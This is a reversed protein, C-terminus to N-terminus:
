WQEDLFTEDKIEVLSAADRKSVNGSPARLITATIRRNGVVVELTDGESVQRGPRAITQNVKVAGADCLQKARPRQKVLRSVKLFKDLRVGSDEIIM